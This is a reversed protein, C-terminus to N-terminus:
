IKSSNVQLEQLDEDDHVVDSESAPRRLYVARSNLSVLIVDAITISREPMPMGPMGIDLGLAIIPAGPVVVAPMFIIITGRQVIVKVFCRPPIFITHAHSSLTEAPMSCFRQVMIAPPSQLQQQMIFPIITQQQLRVIPRQLHSAVSSPTQMVHVLPSGAHQAIISAQQAQRDPIVFDPQVHQRSM